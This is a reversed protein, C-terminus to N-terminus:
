TGVLERVDVLGTAAAVAIAQARNDVQLRGYLGRLERHVQRRSLRLEDSLDCAFAGQALRRLLELDRRSFDHQSCAPQARGSDSGVRGDVMEALLDTPMLSRGRLLEWVVQAVFGRDTDRGVVVSAGATIVEAVPVAARVTESIQGVVPKAGGPPGVSSARRVAALDEERLVSVIAVRDRLRECWAWPDVPVTARLGSGVLVERLARGHSRIPDLIGVEVRIPFGSGNGNAATM